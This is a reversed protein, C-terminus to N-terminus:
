VTYVHISHRKVSIDKKVDSNSTLLLVKVGVLYGEGGGGCCHGSKFVVNLTQM